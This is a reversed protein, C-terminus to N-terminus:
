EIATALQAFLHNVIRGVKHDLQDWDIEAEADFLTPDVEIQDLPFDAIHSRELVPEYDAFCIQYCLEWLNIQRQCHGHHLHLLYLMQPQALDALDQEIAAMAAPAATDLQQHLQNVQAQEELSTGVPWVEVTEYHYNGQWPARELHKRLHDLLRILAPQM